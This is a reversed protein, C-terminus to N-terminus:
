LSNSILRFLFPLRVDSQLEELLSRISSGFVNDLDEPSILMHSFITHEDSEPITKFVAQCSELQRYGFPEKTLDSIERPIKTLTEDAQRAILDSYKYVVYSTAAPPIDDLISSYALKTPLTSGGSGLHRFESGPATM